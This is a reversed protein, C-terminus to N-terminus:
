ELLTSIRDIMVFQFDAPRADAVRGLGELLVSV